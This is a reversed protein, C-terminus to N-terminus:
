KTRWGLSQRFLSLAALSMIVADFTWLILSAPGHLEFAVATALVFSAVSGVWLTLRMPLQITTTLTNRSAGAVVSSAIGPFLVLLAVGPDTSHTLVHGHTTWVRLAGVIGCVALFTAGYVSARAVGTYVSRLEIALAGSWPAESPARSYRIRFRQSCSVSVQVAKGEVPLGKIMTARKFWTDFPSEATLEYRECRGISGLEVRLSMTGLRTFYRRTRRIVEWVLRIVEWVVARVPGRKTSSRRRVSPIPRFYSYSLVRTLGDAPDLQVVLQVSSTIAALAYRFELRKALEFGDQGFYLLRAIAFDFASDAAEQTETDAVTRDAAETSLKRLTEADAVTRDTTETPLKRLYQVLGDDLRKGGLAQAAFAVLGSGLLKNLEDSAMLPVLVNAEDLVHTTARSHRDLDGLPVVIRGAEAPLAESRWLPSANLREDQLGQPPPFRDLAIVLRVDHRIYLHNVFTLTDHREKIIPPQALVTTLLQAGISDEVSPILDV